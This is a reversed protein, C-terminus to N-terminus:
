REKGVSVNASAIYHDELRRGSVIEHFTTDPQGPIPQFDVSLSRPDSPLLWAPRDGLRFGGSCRWNMQLDGLIM